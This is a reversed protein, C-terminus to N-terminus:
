SRIALPSFCDALRRCIPCAAACLLLWMLSFPLCIQGLVNGPVDAYDWVHWGLWLNVTCGVAFEVLTIVATGIVCRTLFSITRAYVHLIYLVTFCIGGTITMTWHTYGRWLIELLSYAAGGTLFVTAFELVKRLFIVEDKNNVSVLHNIRQFGRNERIFTRSIEGSGM